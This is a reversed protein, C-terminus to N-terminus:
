LFVSPCELKLFDSAIERRVAATKGSPGKARTLVWGRGPAWKKKLWLMLRLKVSLEEKTVERSSNQSKARPLFLEGLENLCLRM